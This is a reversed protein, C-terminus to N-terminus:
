LTLTVPETLPCPLSNFLDEAPHLRHTASPFQAVAPQGAVAQPRFHSDGAVVQHTEVLSVAAVAHAAPDTQGSRSVM